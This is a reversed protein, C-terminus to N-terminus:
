SNWMGVTVSKGPSIWLTVYANFTIKTKSERLRVTDLLLHEAAVMEWGVTHKRCKTTEKWKKQREGQKNEMEAEIGGDRKGEQGKFM